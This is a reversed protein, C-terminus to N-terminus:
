NHINARYPTGSYANNSPRSPRACGISNNMRPCCHHCHCRGLAQVRAKRLRQGSLEFMSSWVISALCEICVITWTVNVAIGKTASQDTEVTLLGNFELLPSGLICGIVWSYLWQGFFVVCSGSFCRIVWSFLWHSSFAVIVWQICCIVLLYLLSV